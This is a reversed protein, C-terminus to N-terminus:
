RRRAYDAKVSRFVPGWSPHGAEAASLEYRPYMELIRRFEDRCPRERGSACHIFALHKRAQARNDDDALGLDLAAQLLRAAEKYNGDEYHRVGARLSPEGRNQAFPVQACATVALALALPLLRAFRPAVSM